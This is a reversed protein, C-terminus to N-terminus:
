RVSAKLGDFFALPRAGCACLSYAGISRWVFYCSFREFAHPAGQAEGPKFAHLCAALPDSFDIADFPETLGTGRKKTYAEKFTWLLCLAQARWNNPLADLTTRERPHLIHRELACDRKAFARFSEVDCGVEDTSVACLAAGRAHSLNFRIHPRGPFRPKGQTGYALEERNIDFPEEPFSECAVARELLMWAATSAARDESFRLCEIKRARAPHIRHAAASNCLAHIDWAGVCECAQKHDLASYVM